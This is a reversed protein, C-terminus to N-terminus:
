YYDEAEAEEDSIPLFSPLLKSNEPKRAMSLANKIPLPVPECANERVATQLDEFSAGLTQMTYLAIINLEFATEALFQPLLRRIEKVTSSKLCSYYRYTSNNEDSKRPRVLHHLLRYKTYNTVKPNTLCELLVKEALERTSKPCENSVMSEVLRWTCHKASGHWDTLIVCLKKIHAPQREKRKIKKALFHCFDKADKANLLEQDLKFRRDFEDFPKDTVQPRSAVFADEEEDSYEDSEYAKARLKEIGVEGEAFETKSSNLNLGKSLLREQLALTARTATPRDMAFIRMDDNYRGFDINTISSM